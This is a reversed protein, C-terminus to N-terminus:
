VIKFFFFFKKYTVTWRIKIQCRLMWRDIHYIWRTRYALSCGQLRKYMMDTFDRFKCITYLAHSLFAVFHTDNQQRGLFAETIKDKWLKKKKM